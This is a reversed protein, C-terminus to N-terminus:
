PFALTRPAQVLLDPSRVTLDLAHWGARGPEAPMFTILYRNRLAESLSRLTQPVAAMDPALLFQGGSRATVDRV